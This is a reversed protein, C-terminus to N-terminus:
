PMAEPRVLARPILKLFREGELLTTRDGHDVFTLTLETLEREELIAQVRPPLEQIPYAWILLRVWVRNAQDGLAPDLRPVAKRRTRLIPPHGLLILTRGRDTLSGATEKEGYFRDAAAAREFFSVRLPNELEGPTPDRRRWFEDIFELAQRNTSLQHFRSSEEPLMLWRVPGAAWLRAGATVKPGSSNASCGIVLTLALLWTWHRQNAMARMTASSVVPELGRTVRTPM